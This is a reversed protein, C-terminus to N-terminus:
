HRAAFPLGIMGALPKSHGRLLVHDADLLQLLLSRGCNTTSRHRLVV